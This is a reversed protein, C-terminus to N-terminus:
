SSVGGTLKTIANVFYNVAISGFASMPSTLKGSTCTLIGRARTTFRMSSRRKSVTISDFVRDLSLDLFANRGIFVPMVIPFYTANSLPCITDCKQLGALKPPLRSPTRFCWSVDLRDHINRIFCSEIIVSTLTPWEINTESGLTSGLIGYQAVSASSQRCSRGADAGCAPTRSSCTWVTIWEVPKALIAQSSWDSRHPSKSGACLM